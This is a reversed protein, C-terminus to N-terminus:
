LGHINNTESAHLLALFLISFFFFLSIKAFCDTQGHTLQICIIQQNGSSPFKQEWFHCLFNLVNCISLSQSVSQTDFVDGTACLFDGWWTCFDFSINKVFLLDPASQLSHDHLMINILYVNLFYTESLTYHIFSTMLIQYLSLIAKLVYLNYIALRAIKKM